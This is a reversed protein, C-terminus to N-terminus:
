FRLLLTGDVLGYGPDSAPFHRLWTVAIASGARSETVLGLDGAGPWPMLYHAFARTQLM